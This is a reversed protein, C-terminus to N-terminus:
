DTILELGEIEIRNELGTVDLWMTLPEEISLYDLLM